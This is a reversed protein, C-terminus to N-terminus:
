AARSRHRRVLYQVQDPRLNYESALAEYVSRPKSLLRRLQVELDLLARLEYPSLASPRGPKM